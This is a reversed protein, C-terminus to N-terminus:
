DWKFFLDIRTNRGQTSTEERVDINKAGNIQALHKLQASIYRTFYKLNDDTEGMEDMTVTISKDGTQEIKASSFNYNKDQLEIIKKIARCPDDVLIFSKFPGKVIEDILLKALVEVINEDDKVFIKILATVMKQSFELPYWQSPIFSNNIIEMYEPPIHEEWPKDKVNRILEVLGIVAVGKVKREETM